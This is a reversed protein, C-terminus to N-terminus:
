PTKCKIQGVSKDATTAKVWLALGGGRGRAAIYRDTVAFFAFFPLKAIAMDLFNQTRNSGGRVPVSFLEWNGLWVQLQVFDFALLNQREIFKAPGSFRVKLPGIQLQNRITLEEQNATRDFGIAANVLGPIYFGRATPQGDKYRPKKPATFRLRWDGLLADASFKQRERKHAREADLLAMTLAKGDPRQGPRSLDAAAALQTSHAPSAIAVDSSTMLFEWLVL